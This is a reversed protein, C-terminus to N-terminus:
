FPKNPGHPKAQSHNPTLLGSLVWSSLEKITYLLNFFPMKFM